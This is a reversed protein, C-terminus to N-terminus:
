EEVRLDRLGPRYATRGSIENYNLKCQHSAITEMLSREGEVIDLVDKNIKRNTGSIKETRMEIVM